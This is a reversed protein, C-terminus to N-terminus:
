NMPSAFWEAVGPLRGQHRLFVPQVFCSWYGTTGAASEFGPIRSLYPDVLIVTNEDAIEWGATGLYTVQM